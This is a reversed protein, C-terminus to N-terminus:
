FVNTKSTVRNFKRNAYIQLHNKLYDTERGVVQPILLSALDYSSFQQM